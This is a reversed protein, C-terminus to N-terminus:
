HWAEGKGKVELWGQRGVARMAPETHAIAKAHTAEKRQAGITGMARRVRAAFARYGAIVVWDFLVM